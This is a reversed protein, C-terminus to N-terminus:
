GLLVPWPALLLEFLSIISPSPTFHTTVVHKHRLLSLHSDEALPHQLLHYRPAHFILELEGLFLKPPTHADYITGPM